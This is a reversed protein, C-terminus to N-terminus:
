PCGAAYANLYCAFDLVNLTPPSTSADCNAHPSGSAFGNLFAAFDNVDLHGSDDFDAYCYVIPVSWAGRGMTAVVLRSRAPEVHIDVVQARPLGAGYLRWTAGENVSRYLGSDTGAYLVPAQFRPDSAITNVPIDPLDGDLTQWTAGADRSRRIHPQGFAATALYATRPDAPDATIERTTRPWGPIGTLRLAFTAGGDSSSLIRGDNTAAYVYSPDIPAIDLARIAASGGSTLDPSLATFNVGGDTSRFLRETAYLVRNPNTPDFLYPPLFCNRGSLGAGASGFTTGGDTSRYLNGTGQSETLLRSPNTQDILTWGGDGGTLSTWARSDATRLNCGNDQNGGLVVDPNTPHTALGPYFQATGLGTNLGSWSAGLNFSRHLGGDDGVLLRGGADFALAHNDVHPATITSWSAGANTSRLVDFGGMAANDPSTPSARVVSTYWGSTAQFSGVPISTWTSGGNDSRWAGLTSAGGGAADSSHAILTYLRQPNSPAIDIAIRGVNATPLGGALKVWSDGGDTSKYIGNESAGFIRGIAAYLILPNSPDIALDTADQNPLGSLLQTWTAGGDDSRFVGRPGNASPHSKAAAMEPFGGAHTVAAYLRATNASNIVLRAICRGAFTSEALQQWTDGSNTSRYIGLGYRSHNAFNAEGTGAYITTPTVPDIALAGISTTPMQDTLPTWTTGGDLTRWVGGDAGGVFCANANTPHPAIASIRGASSGIPAPGLDKWTQGLASAQGALAALTALRSM